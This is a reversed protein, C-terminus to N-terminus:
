TSRVIARAQEVIREMAGSTFAEAREIRSTSLLDTAGGDADEDVIVLRWYGKRCSWGLTAGTDIPTKLIKRVALTRRLHFEITHIADGIQDDIANLQATLVALETFVERLSKEETTAKVARVAGGEILALGLSTKPTHARLKNPVERSSANPELKRLIKTAQRM